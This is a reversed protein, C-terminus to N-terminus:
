PNLYPDAGLTAWASLAGPTSRLRWDYTVGGKAITTDFYVIAQFATMDTKVTAAVDRLWQAKRGPTDEIVGYEAAMVPKGTTLSWTYFRQFVQKFTRWKSGPKAPYWNYGDAAVWDVYAAGPYYVSPDSIQWKWATTCWVWVVNDAGEAAFLDHVHRWAAVFDAPTHVIPKRYDGDMEHYFRLFIPHGFDRLRRAQARLWPDQSGNRLAITDSAGWTVMPIRGSAVDWSEDATPIAENYAYFRHDIDLQRGINAELAQVEARTGDPTTRDPNTMAGFWAGSPPSLPGIPRGAAQGAPVSSVLVSFLGVTAVLAARGVTRV